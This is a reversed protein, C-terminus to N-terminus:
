SWCLACSNKNNLIIASQGLLRPAIDKQGQATIFANLGTIAFQQRAKSCRSTPICPTDAIHVHGPLPRSGAAVCNQATLVGASATRSLSSGIHVTRLLQSAIRSHHGHSNGPLVRQAAHRTPLQHRLWRAPGGQSSAFSSPRDGHLRGTWLKAGPWESDDCVCHNWDLRGSIEPRDAGLSLFTSARVIINVCAAAFGRELASREV